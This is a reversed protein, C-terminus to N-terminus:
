AAFPNEVPVGTNKFDATNRTAVQFGHAIATAAILSDKVPMALGRKKLKALLRAWAAATEKDMDVVELTQIVREFWEEMRNRRRGPPMALIGYEIEGLIIPNVVLDQEHQRLWRIAKEDPAPKTLESLVNADVLYSM